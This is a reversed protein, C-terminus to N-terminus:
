LLTDMIIGPHDLKYKRKSIADLLKRRPGMPLGIEKLDSDSLLMLSSLDIQERSFVVQYGLMDNAALFTDLTTQTVTPAHNASQQWPLDRMRATLSGVTGISDDDDSYTSDEDEEEQRHSLMHDSARRQLFAVNGFGPREFIGPAHHERGSSSGGSDVGSDSLDPVSLSSVQHSDGDSFSGNETCQRARVYIVQHDRQLGALSRVSRAGNVIDCVRFDSAVSNNDGGTRRTKIRKAVGNLLSRHTKNKFHASYPKPEYGIDSASSYSRSLSRVPGNQVTTVGHLNRPLSGHVSMRESDKALKRDEKEARKQSKEQQKTYKKVRKEADLLAKQKLREVVKKNLTCQKTIALDLHKVIDLHNNLLAVDMATHFDNDLCWLNAGFSVLFTACNMQGNSVSLHLASSGYFDCKDPNGGRGVLLRLADLHGHFAAWLVPTRGDEDSKNADRSTATSLLDLYGDRAAKHFVTTM